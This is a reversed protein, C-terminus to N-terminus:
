RAGCDREALEHQIMDPDNAFSYEKQKFGICGHECETINECGWKICQKTKGNIRIMM